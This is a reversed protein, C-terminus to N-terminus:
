AVGGMSVALHKGHKVYYRAARRVRRMPFGKGPDTHGGLPFDKHGKVTRSNIKNGTSYSWYAIVEALKTLQKRHTTLWEKKTTAAFGILECGTSFSNVGACHQVLEKIPAGKAYNGEKDVANHVWYNTKSLYAYMGKLDTIGAYNKGESTHIIFYLEVSKSGLSVHKVRQANYQIRPAKVATEQKAKRKDQKAIIREVKSM